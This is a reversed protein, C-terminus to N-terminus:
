IVILNYVERLRGPLTRFFAPNTRTLRDIPLHSMVVIPLLRSCGPVTSLCAAATENSATSSAKRRESLVNREGRMTSAASVLASAPLTRQFGTFDSHIEAIVSKPSAAGSKKVQPASATKRAVVATVMQRPWESPM